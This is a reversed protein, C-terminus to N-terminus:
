SRFFNVYILGFGVIVGNHLSIVTFVIGSPQAQDQIPEEMESGGVFLDTNEALICMYYTRLCHVFWTVRDLEDFLLM